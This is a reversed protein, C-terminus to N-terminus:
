GAALRAAYIEPKFGVILGGPTELVPRKYSFDVMLVDRGTADPPEKAYVGPYFEVEDGLAARVCWAAAFGDDCGGHYICLPNM